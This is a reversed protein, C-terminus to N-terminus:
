ERCDEALAVLRPMPPIRPRDASLRPRYGLTMATNLNIFLEFKTLQEEARVRVADQAQVRVGQKALHSRWQNLPM